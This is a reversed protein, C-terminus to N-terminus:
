LDEQRRSLEGILAQSRSRIAPSGATLLSYTGIFALRDFSMLSASPLKTSVISKAWGGPRPLLAHARNVIASPSAVFDLSAFLDPVSPCLCGFDTTHDFPKFM